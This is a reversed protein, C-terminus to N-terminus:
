PADGLRDAAAGIIRDAADDAASAAARVAARAPEPAEAAAVWLSRGAARVDAALRRLHHADSPTLAAPAGASM